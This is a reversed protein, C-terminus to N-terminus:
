QGSFNRSFSFNKGTLSYSYNSNSVGKKLQINSKAIKNIGKVGAQALDWTTLKDSPQNPEEDSKCVDKRFKSIIFEKITLSETKKNQPLTHIDALENNFAKAVDIRRFTTIENKNDGNLPIYALLKPQIPKLSADNLASSNNIINAAKKGNNYSVYPLRHIFVNNFGNNRDIPIIEASMNTKNNQQFLFFIGFLILISAAISIYQYSINKKYQKPSIIYKKLDKKNEYVISNDPALKTQKYLNYVAHIQTNKSLFQKLEHIEEMSLDNEMEAIFFNEYNAQNISGVPFIEPKKLKEKNEFIVSTDPKLKTLKILHYTENLHPNQELFIKIDKAEKETLDNEIDAIFFMEYNSSDISGIPFIEKKKISEKNEFVINEDAVISFNEFSDFEKKIEPNENIFLFLESIQNPNLNGDYYDLFFEEYNNRNIKM